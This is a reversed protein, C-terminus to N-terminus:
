NVDIKSTSGMLTKVSNKIKVGLGHDKLPFRGGNKFPIRSSSTVIDNELDLDTDIDSGIVYDSISALFNVDQSVGVGSEQISGVMVDLKNKKALVFMKKGWYIGGARQLKINVGNVSHSEIIKYLDQLNATSEDAFIPIKSRETIYRLKELNKRPSPQEIFLIRDGVLDYINNFIKVAIREDRYAENADLTLDGPFLKTVAMVRKKDIKPQGSLKLKIRKIGYKRYKSMINRTENVTNELSGIYITVTNLVNKWRCEGIVQYVPKRKSKGLLDYCASDIANIATNSIVGSKRSTNGMMEHISNLDCPDCGKLTTKAQSLLRFATNKSDGTISKIPTSEGIGILNENTKILVFLNQIKNFTRYYIRRSKNIKFNVRYIKLDSIIM